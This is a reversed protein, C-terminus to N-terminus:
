DHRDAINKYITTLAFIAVSVIVICAGTPLNLFYSFLFGALASLMGFFSSTIIVPIYGTCVQYAAAAPCTILSFIMLGGILPLNVALVVGCLILFLCYVFSEHVGTAAAISRSFLLIKMEKNFLTVFLILVVAMVAITIARARDVFLINGWLLNLMDTRSGQNFGIGLFTIGLMLCFIIALGVNKDLRTKDERITALSVASIVSALVCGLSTTIPWLVPNNFALLGGYIFGAMSAHSICTGIFPMRMGIIFVGLLGTSAGAIISALIVPYFYSDLQMLINNM